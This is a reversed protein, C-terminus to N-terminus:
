RWGSVSDNNNSCSDESFIQLLKRNRLDIKIYSYKLLGFHEVTSLVDSKQLVKLSMNNPM